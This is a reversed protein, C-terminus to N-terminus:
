GSLFALNGHAVARLRDGDVGEGVALRGEPPAPETAEALGPVPLRQLPELVQQVLEGALGRDQPTPALGQRLEQPGGHVVRAAQGDEQRLQRRRVVREAPPRM